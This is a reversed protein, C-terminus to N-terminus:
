LPVPSKKERAHKIESLWLVFREESIREMDKQFSVKAADPCPQQAYGQIRKNARLILAHMARGLQCGPPWTLVM